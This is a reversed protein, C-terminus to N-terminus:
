APIPNGVVFGGDVDLCTGTIYRAAESCLFLVPGVLDDASGWAGLASRAEVAAAGAPSEWIPRTMDTRHYGPAVANVRVGTRGWRHACARTLGLVGSKSAGYGPVSADALYSLMSAFNVVAGRQAILTEALGFSLRMAANLNVDMTELFGDETWEREPLAIGAANVLIDVPGAEACFSAVAARDRLDLRRFTVGPVALAAIKAASSGLGTVQAGHAALGRAVALGIGSTAGSLVARKGNFLDPRFPSQTVAPGEADHDAAPTPM